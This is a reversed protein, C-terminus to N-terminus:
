SKAPVAQQEEVSQVGYEITGFTCPANISGLAKLVDAIPADNAIEILLKRAVIAPFPEPLEPKIIAIDDDSAGLRRLLDRLAKGLTDASMYTRKQEVAEHLVNAVILDVGRTVKIQKSM